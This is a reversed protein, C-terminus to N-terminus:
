YGQTLAIVSINGLSTANVSAGVTNPPIIFFDTALGAAATQGTGTVYGSLVQEVTNLGTAVATGQKAGSAITITVKNLKQGAQLHLIPQIISSM